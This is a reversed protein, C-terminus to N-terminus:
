ALDSLDLGVPDSTAPATKRQQMREHQAVAMEGDDAVARDDNANGPTLLGLAVHNTM